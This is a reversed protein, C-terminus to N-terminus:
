EFKTSCNELKQLVTNLEGKYGGNDSIKCILKKSNIDYISLTNRVGQSYIEKSYKYSINSYSNEYSKQYFGITKCTVLVISNNNLIIKAAYKQSSIGAFLSILILGGSILQMQIKSSMILIFLLLSIVIITILQIRLCRRFVIEM